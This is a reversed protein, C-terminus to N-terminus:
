RRALEDILLGAGRDSTPLGEIWVRVQTGVTPLDALLQRLLRVRRGLRDDRQAVVVVRHAGLRGITEGAAFVTRADDGVRALVMARELQDVGPGGVQAEDPLECVVLANTLNVDGSPHSRYLDTLRTRVHSQSALGTLPDECSLHNLYGLTTDSWAVLLAQVAAYSPDAGRLVQWTERLGELAEELSVCDRALLQGVVGCADVSDSGSALAEAVAEFRPPLGLRVDPPLMERAGPDGPLPRRARVAFIGM